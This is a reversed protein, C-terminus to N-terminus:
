FTGFLASRKPTETGDADDVTIGVPSTSPTTSTKMSDGAFPTSAGLIPMGEGSFLYDAPLAALEDRSRLLAKAEKLPRRLAPVTWERGAGTRIKRRNLLEVLQRANLSKHAPAESLVDAVREIAIEANTRRVRASARVAATKDKPSGLARGREKLSALAEATTQAIIDAEDQAAEIAAMIARNRRPSSLLKGEQLSLVGGSFSALLPAVDATNRSLRDLRVVVLNADERNARAIADQLGVRRMLNSDHHASGVDEHIALLEVDHAVAWDRILAAQNELSMTDDAQGATSVRIYGVIKGRRRM